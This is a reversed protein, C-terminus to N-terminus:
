GDSRISLTKERDTRKKQKVKKVTEGEEEIKTICYFKSLDAKKGTIHRAISEETVGMYEALEELFVEGGGDMSLIGYAEDVTEKSIRKGKNKGKALNAESSGEVYAKELEGSTDLTHVPYEFWVNLPKPQEFERLTFEIRFPYSGKDQVMNKQENTLELPTLDLIADPDRAFVGSGSSRDVSKKAGQAGKSHHHCYVMSCGLSRIVKDFQNCFQGMESANNEDGTIVKYIPDLIIMDPKFDKAKRVIKPVLDTMTMAHGRLNWIAISGHSKVGKKEYIDWLRNKFSNDDIELNMYLVKGKEVQMGLFPLGEAMAMALQMMLFSKGAKSPGSILMKHGKRLVGHIQEPALEPRETEENWMELEPLGDCVGEVFDMWDNWNKKGINEAVLYQRNEGRYFGPMRTLRSPNSNQRDIKVGNDELHQYLFRVRKQYEELDQADVRVLAHLSKNGSHVMTAIPLELRRYLADQDPISMTDSEVLAFRYRLVNENKVGNGDLPNFRIWAGAETRADGMVAGIDPEEKESQKKLAKLLDGARQDYAGSLPKWKGDKTDEYCDNTVYGVIDDPEYIAEIFRILDEIPKWEKRTLVPCDDGDYEIESDWDLPEAKDAQYSWGREKAMEIITGISVTDAGKRRFGRWKKACEGDTYRTDAQSWQDWLDCEYGGAKLAMGVKIWDTYGLDSVPLASLAQMLYRDDEM